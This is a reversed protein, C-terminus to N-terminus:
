FICEIRVSLFYMGDHDNQSINLNSSTFNFNLKKFINFHHIKTGLIVLEYSLCPLPPPALKDLLPGGRADMSDRSLKSALDVGLDSNPFMVPGPPGPLDFLIM